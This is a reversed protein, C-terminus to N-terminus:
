LLSTLKSKDTELRLIVKELRHWVVKWHRAFGWRFLIFCAIVCIFMFLWLSM